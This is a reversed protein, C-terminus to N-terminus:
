CNLRFENPTQHYYDKFNRYFRSSDSYGIDYMIIEISKSTNKLLHAAKKLRLEKLLQKFSKGTAEKIWRSLYGQSLSFAAALQPLTVSRLEQHMYSLINKLRSAQTNQELLLYDQPFVRLLSALLIMVLSRQIIQQYPLNKDTETILQDIITSLVTSTDKQWLLIPKKLAHLMQLLLASLETDEFLLASFATQFTSRKILLNWVVTDPNNTFLSQRTEPPVICVSGARMQYPHNNVTLRASGAKIYILKFMELRHIFDPTFNTHQIMCIDKDPLAAFFDPESLYSEIISPALEPLSTGPLKELYYHRFEEWSSFQPFNDFPLEQYMQYYIHENESLELEDTAM